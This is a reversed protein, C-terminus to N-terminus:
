EYRMDKEDQHHKLLRSTAYYKLKTASMVKELYDRKDMAEDISSKEKSTRKLMRVEHVMTAWLEIIFAYQNSFFIMLEEIQTLNVGISVDTEPIEKTYIDHLLDVLATYELARVNQVTVINM